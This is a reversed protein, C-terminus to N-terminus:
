VVLIFWRGTDHLSNSPTCKPWWARIAAVIEDPADEWIYHGAGRLVVTCHHPLITEWREREKARFAVDADGWVILAETTALAPLAAECAALFRRSKVIERPFIWSPMRADPTALPRRYAELVSPELRHRKVGAPMFANVFANARRIAVRGLPGGMTRSFAEFHFDGNVPWCWTNGIVLREIRAPERAAVHLGIPGGWDQVVPTYRELALADVFDAIVHAHEEPLFGYGPAAVSRGFGPLDVAICRFYDRLGAILHRFVFSWTPNGHLMLLVPGAGEDVYHVRAGAIEVFRSAYPFTGPVLGFTRETETADVSRSM